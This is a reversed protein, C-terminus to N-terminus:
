ICQFMFTYHLTHCLITQNPTIQDSRTKSLVLPQPCILGGELRRRHWCRPKMLMSVLASSDCHPPDSSLKVGHFYLPCNLVMSFPPLKVGHSFLPCNPVMFFISSKVGHLYPCNSVMLTFLVIQCWSFDLVILCWPLFPRNSVMSFFSSKVGHFFLVIQCWPIPSAILMSVSASSDYHPTTLVIWSLCSSM